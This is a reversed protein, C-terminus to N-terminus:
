FAKIFILLLPIGVFHTLLLLAIGLLLAKIWRPETTARALQGPVITVGAIATV